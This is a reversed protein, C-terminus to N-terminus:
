LSLITVRADPFRHMYTTLPIQIRDHLDSLYAEWLAQLQQLLFIVFFYLFLFVKMM